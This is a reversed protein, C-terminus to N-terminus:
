KELFTSCCQNIIGLEQNIKGSKRGLYLIIGKVPLREENRYMVKGEFDWPDSRDFVNTLRPNIQMRLGREVIAEYGDVM